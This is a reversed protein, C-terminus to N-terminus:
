KGVVLIGYGPVEGYSRLEEVEAGGDGEGRLWREPVSTGGWRLEGGLGGERAAGEYVERRLHFCEFDVDGVGTEGHVHFFVGDEVDRLKTYVLGGSGEPPPRVRTEADISATPDNTPPVTVSIFHGGPLLNLAINRFMEVLAARTPAYNLLWAGFVIDYPGGPYPTPHSCDALTFTTRPTQSPPTLLRAQALMPPSIDIGHVSRAGWPIFSHTYFGTGCALDLVHASSIYPSLTTHINEREILAISKERIADYPARIKNYQTSM